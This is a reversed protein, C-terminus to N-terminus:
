KLYIKKHDRRNDIRPLIIKKKKMKEKTKTLYRNTSHACYFDTSTDNGINLDKIDIEEQLLLNRVMEMDDGYRIRPLSEDTATQIRSLEKYLHNEFCSFTFDGRFVRLGVLRDLNKNYREALRKVLVAENSKGERIQFKKMELLEQFIRKEM